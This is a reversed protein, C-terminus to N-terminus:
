FGPPAAIERMLAAAKGSEIGDPSHASLIRQARECHELAQDRNGAAAHVRALLLHTQGAPYLDKRGERSLDFALSHELFVRARDLEGLLLLAHAEYRRIRTANPATPGYLRDRAARVDNIHDLARRALALRDAPDATADAQLLLTRVLISRTVLTVPHDRGYRSMRIEAEKELLSAALEFAGSQRYAVSLNARTLGALYSDEGHVRRQFELIETQSAVDPPTYNAEQRQNCVIERLRVLEPASAPVCRAFFSELRAWLAPRAALTVDKCHLSVVLRALRIAAETSVPVVDTRASLVPLGAANWALADVHEALLAKAYGSTPQWRDRSRSELVSLAETAGRVRGTAEDHNV